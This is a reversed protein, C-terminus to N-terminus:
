SLHRPNYLNVLGKDVVSRFSIITDKCWITSMERASLLWLLDEGVQSFDSFLIM